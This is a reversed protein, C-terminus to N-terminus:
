VIFRLGIFIPLIEVICLYSILYLVRTPMVRNITLFIIVSRMLYFTALVFLLSEKIVTRADPVALVLSFLTVTFLSYFVTNAQILKFFHLDTINGINFLGGLLGLFFYKSILGIFFLISLRFFNALLIGLTEGEQLFWKNGLLTLGSYQLLLYALSLTLSLLVIFLVNTRSLTQSAFLSQERSYVTFFGTLDFFGNFARNYSTSLYSFLCLTVIFLLSLSSQYPTLKRPLIQFVEESTNKKNRPQSVLKHGIVVRKSNVNKSGYITLYIQKKKYVRYLSDVSLRVWNNVPLKRKLAGEVFLFNNEEEVKILLDYRANKEINCFIVHAPIDAHRELIYPVYSEYKDDYVYWDRQFDHVVAHSGNNGVLTIAWTNHSFQLILSITFFIASNRLIVKM